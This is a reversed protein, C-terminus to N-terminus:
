VLRRRRVALGLAGLGLAVVGPEPVQRLQFANLQPGASSTGNTEFTQISINQTASDATFTGTFLRFGWSGGNYAYQTQAGGDVSVLRGNQAGRADAFLLQVQYQAGVTLGSLPFTGAGGGAWSGANILNNSALGNYFGGFSNGFSFSGAAFPIDVITDNDFDINIASGGSNEAQVLTGAVSLVSYWTADVNTSPTEPVYQSTWLVTAGDAASSLCTLAVAGSLFLSSRNM